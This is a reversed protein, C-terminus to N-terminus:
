LRSLSASVAAARWVRVENLELNGSGDKDVDRFIADVQLSSLM